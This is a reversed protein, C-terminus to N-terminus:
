EGKNGKVWFAKHEKGKMRMENGICESVEVATIRAGNFENSVQEGTRSANVVELSSTRISRVAKSCKRNERCMAYRHM